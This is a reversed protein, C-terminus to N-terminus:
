PEARESVPKRANAPEAMQSSLAAGERPSASPPTLILVTAPIAASLLMLCPIAAWVLEVGLSQGSHLRAESGPRTSWNSIFMAVFVGLVFIVCLGFIIVRM